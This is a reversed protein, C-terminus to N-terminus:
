EWLRIHRQILFLTLLCVPLNCAAFQVIEMPAFTGTERALGPHTPAYEVLMASGVNRPERRSTWLKTRHHEAGPLEM